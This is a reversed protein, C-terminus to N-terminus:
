NLVSKINFSHIFKNLKFNYNRKVSPANSLEFIKKVTFSRIFQNLQTVNQVSILPFVNKM